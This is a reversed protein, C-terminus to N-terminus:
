PQITKEIWDMYKTVRTYVGPWGELGCPEPGYSVVGVLNWLQTTADYAMLPGGSDGNCSDKGLKGGACIQSSIIVISPLAIVRILVTWM